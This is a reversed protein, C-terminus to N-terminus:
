KAEMDYSYVIRSCRGRSSALRGQFDCRRPAGHRVVFGGLNRFFGPWFRSPFFDDFGTSAKQTTV